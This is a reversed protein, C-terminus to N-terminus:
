FSELALRLRKLDSESTLVDPGFRVFGQRADVNIGKEKLKAVAPKTDQVPWLAFGGWQHPDSPVFGGKPELLERIRHLVGLSHSRLREVGTALTFQQGSRAQYLPAISPTSEMWAQTGEGFEPIEPREYSFPNRKAFWGTDLTRNELHRDHIALWCAGPGGRLYKYSGGVAYDFEALDLPIVGAAHYCDVLVRAGVAHARELLQSLSQMIQGTKFLVASVVVLDIGQVLKEAYAEVDLLPVPGERRQPSVWTVKARGRQAYVRLIFDLSDFEETSALVHPCEGLSNLVARLGQGCNSKHVINPLKILQATRAAFAEAEQMWADWAADMDEIWIRSFEAMDAEVQDLPRGLSHNAFYAEDSRALTRQFLPHIHTRIYAESLEGAPLQIV